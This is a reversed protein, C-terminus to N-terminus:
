PLRRLSNQPDLKQEFVVDAFARAYRATVAAM